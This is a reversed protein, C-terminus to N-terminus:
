AWCLRLCLLATVRAWGWGRSAERRDPESRSIWAAGTQILAACLCHEQRGTPAKLPLTFAGGTIGRSCHCGGHGEGRVLRSRSPGSSSDPPLPAPPRHGPSPWGGGGPGGVDGRRLGLGAGSGRGAPAGPPPSLFGPLASALRFSNQLWTQAGPSLVACAAKLAPLRLARPPLLFGPAPGGALHWRHLCAPGM